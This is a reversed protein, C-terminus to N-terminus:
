RTALDMRVNARALFNIGLDCPVSCHEFILFRTKWSFSHVKVRLIVAQKVDCPGGNAAQCREDTAEVTHPLGLQKIKKFVDLRVFSLSSGSDFMAPLCIGKVSLLVWPNGNCEKSSNVTKRPHVVSPARPQRKV